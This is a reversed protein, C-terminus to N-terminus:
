NTGPAAATRGVHRALEALDSTRGGHCPVLTQVDLKLRQINEYLTLAFPVAPPNLATTPTAPPSFADCAFLIKESPLHVLLMDSTHRYGTMLHLQVTKGGTLTGMAGVTQVKVDKKSQALADPMITHMTKPLREIFAKNTEHTVITAGEDIASRIGGLHDWHHHSTVVFRIPKNPIVEKAKAIVAVAREQNNPTDVLVIHDNMEVAMSHHSGGALWFVGEALKQATVNVAPPKATRVNDPVTIDVAPNPTVAAVTLSLSPFGDQKQLIRAPFVVGGFDYYDSYETEVLMDGVIPHPIWNQVREVQNKGNIVGVMKHKGGVNFTVETGGAVQRTTANNAM